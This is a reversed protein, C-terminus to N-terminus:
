VQHNLHFSKQYKIEYNNIDHGEEDIKQVLVVRLFLQVSHTFLRKNGQREYSSTQTRKKGHVYEPVFCLVQKKGKRHRYNKKQM